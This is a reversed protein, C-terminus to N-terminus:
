LNAVYRALARALSGVGAQVFLHTPREVGQAKLLVVAEIAM